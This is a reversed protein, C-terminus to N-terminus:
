CGRVGERCKCEERGLTYYAALALPSHVCQDPCYTGLVPHRRDMAIQLHQKAHTPFQTTDRDSTRDRKLSPVVYLEGQRVISPDWLRTYRYHTGVCRNSPSISLLTSSRPM